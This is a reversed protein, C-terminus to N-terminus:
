DSKKKDMVEYFHKLNEPMIYEQEPLDVDLNAGYVSRLIGEIVMAAPPM